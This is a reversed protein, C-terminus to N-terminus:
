QATLDNPAFSAEKFACASDVASNMAKQIGPRIREMFGSILGAFPNGALNDEMNEEMQGYLTEVIKDTTYIGTPIKYDDKATNKRNVLLIQRTTCSILVASNDTINVRPNVILTGIDLGLAISALIKTSRNM